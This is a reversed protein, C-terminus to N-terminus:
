RLTAVDSQSLIHKSTEIEDVQTQHEPDHDPSLLQRGEDQSEHTEGAVSDVGDVDESEEIIWHRHEEHIEGDVEPHVVSDAQATEHEPSNHNFILVSRQNTM